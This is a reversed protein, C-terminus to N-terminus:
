RDPLGIMRRMDSRTAGTERLHRLATSEISKSLKRGQSDLLLAHHHYLPEPLGFLGQLLRHASTAHFLDRGRVVHTVGQLADDLVCALHYSAPADRRGLIFDGWQQPNARIRGHEGRPGLGTEQWSVEDRVRALAKHMDLRIAHDQDGTLIEERKEPKLDRETGPYHPAGDPDRPWPSGDIEADQVHRRIQSRSLLAPYALEEAILDDIASRYADFHESQRRPPADWEFGIWELDHLMMSLKASTCRVTDIDEIRLLMTGGAERAMSLNTLASYAHGLHLLGNPSPAFRFVPQTM